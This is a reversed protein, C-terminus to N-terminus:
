PTPLVLDCTVGDDCITAVLTARRPLEGRAVAAAILSAIEHLIAPVPHRPDTTPMRTEEPLGSAPDGLCRADHGAPQPQVEHAPNSGVRGETPDCTTM